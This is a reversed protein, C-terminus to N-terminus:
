ATVKPHQSGPADSYANNWTADDLAGALDDGHGDLKRAPPRPRPLPDDM